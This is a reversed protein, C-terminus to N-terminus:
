RSEAQRRKDGLSVLVSAILTLVLAGVLVLAIFLRPDMAIIPGLLPWSLLAAGTLLMSLFCGGLWM